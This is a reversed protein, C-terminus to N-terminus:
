SSDERLLNLEKARLFILFTAQLWHPITSLTHSPLQTSREETIVRVRGSVLQTVEVREM